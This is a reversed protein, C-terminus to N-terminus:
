NRFLCETALGANERWQVYYKHVHALRRASAIGESHLVRYCYIRHIGIELYNVWELERYNVVGAPLPVGLSASPAPHLDFDRLATLDKMHNKGMAYVQRFSMADVESIVIRRCREVQSCAKGGLRLSSIYHHAGIPGHLDTPFLNMGHQDGLSVLCILRPVSYAIRVQEYLNGQLDINDVGKNKRAELWNNTARRVRNLFRHEGHTGEYFALTLDDVRHDRIRRLALRAVSDRSTPFDEWRTDLAFDGNAFSLCLEPEIASPGAGDAVPLVILVPKYGVLAHLSTVDRAASSDHATAYVNLPNRLGELPLCVYEQPFAIGTLLKRLRPNM